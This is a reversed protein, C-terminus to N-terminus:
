FLTIVSAGSRQLTETLDRIAVASRSVNGPNSDILMLYDRGQHRKGHGAFFFWLSDGLGLFPQKFRKYLFYELNGFTPDSQLPRLRDETAILDAGQAFFYVQEFEVGKLFDRMAEADQVAYSLSQLNYYDNIGITIAYNRGM